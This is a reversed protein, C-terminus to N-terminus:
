IIEKRMKIKFIIIELKINEINDNKNNNEIEININNKDIDNVEIQNGDANNNREINDGGVYCDGDGVNENERNENDNILIIDVGTSLKQINNNYDLDQNLPWCYENYESSFIINNMAETFHDLPIDFYEENTM